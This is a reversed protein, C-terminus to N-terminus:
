AFGQDSKHFYIRVVAAFLAIGIGVLEILDAAFFPGIQDGYLPELHHYSTGKVITFGLATAVGLVLFLNHLISKGFMLCAFLIMLFSALMSFILFLTQIERSDEYWGQAHALCRGITFIMAHLDLPTNFAQFGLIGGCVYWLCRERGSNFSGVKLVLLAALAYAIVLITGSAWPDGWIKSWDYFGCKLSELLEEIHFKTTNM